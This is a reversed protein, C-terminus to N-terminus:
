ELASYLVIKPKRLIQIGSDKASRQLGIDTTCAVREGCAATNRGDQSFGDDMKEADFHANPAILMTHIDGSIVNEGIATQLRLALTGIATLREQLIDLLGQEKLLKQSLGAVTLVGDIQATIFTM